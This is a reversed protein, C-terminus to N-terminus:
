AAIGALESSADWLRRASDDKQAEPTPTTLSCKYFYGGTIGAVDPSSALHVITYAGQEPAIAFNKAARVAFSM